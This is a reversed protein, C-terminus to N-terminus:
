HGTWLGRYDWRRMRCVGDHQGFNMAVVERAADIQTRIIDIDRVDKDLEQVVITVEEKGQEQCMSEMELSDIAM